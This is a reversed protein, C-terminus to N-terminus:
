LRPGPADGAANRGDDQKILDAEKEAVAYTSAMISGSIHGPFVSADIVRLGEVVKGEGDILQLKANVVEGMSATGILHYQASIHNKANEIRHEETKLSHEPPPQVREGLSKRVLPHKPVEDVCKIGAAMIKADTENRFYGPDIIPPKLPDSSSIHVTGRSLPHDLCIPLSVRTKCEPTASFFQVQDSGATMDLQCPICFTQLNAFTPDSLQDVIIQEQRKEFNREALSNENIEQITQNLEEKGVLSPYGVFSMLVANGVPLIVTRNVWNNEVICDVGVNRLVTPDGIGPLELLQPTQITGASLVVERTATVNHLSGSHLFQVGAPQDGQSLIKPQRRKPLFRCTSYFGMHDGSRADQLTNETKGVEYAARCFEEELPMYYDNFSTHIPGDTGHYKHRSDPAKQFYPVVDDWGWGENGLAAWSDYDKRSGRVYMLYNIASSGGLVKMRPLSYTKGGANPQPISSMCWDFTERSILTPYLSPTSIRKDDMRNAVAEIVGVTVDPNKTLRAAVVLGATGGGVVVYEDVSCLAPGTSSPVM